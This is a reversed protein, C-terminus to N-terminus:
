DERRETKVHEYYVRRGRLFARLRDRLQDWRPNPFNNPRTQSSNSYGGCLSLCEGCRCESYHGDRWDRRDSWDEFDRCERGWERISDSAQAETSWNVGDSDDDSDRPRRRPFGPPSYRREGRVDQRRLYLETVPRDAALDQAHYSPPQAAPTHFNEFDSLHPSAPRPAPKPPIIDRVGKLSIEDLPCLSQPRQKEGRAPQESQHSRGRHRKRQREIGQPVSARNRIVVGKRGNRIDCYDRDDNQRHRHPKQDGRPSRSSESYKSSENSSTRSTHRHRRHHPRAGFEVDTNQQDIFLNFCM